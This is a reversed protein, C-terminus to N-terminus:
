GSRVGWYVVITQGIPGCEVFLNSFGHTVCIVGGRLELYWVRGESNM